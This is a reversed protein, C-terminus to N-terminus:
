IMYGLVEDDGFRGRSHVGALSVELDGEGTSVLALVKDDVATELAVVLASDEAPSGGVSVPDTRTCSTSGKIGGYEEVRWVSVSAVTHTEKARGCTGISEGSRESGCSWQGSLGALVVGDCEELGTCEAPRATFSIGENVDEPITVNHGSDVGSELVPLEVLEANNTGSVIHEGEM